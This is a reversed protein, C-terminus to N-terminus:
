NMYKEELFKNIRDYFRWANEILETVEKKSMIYFDDYDCFESIEEPTKGRGIM